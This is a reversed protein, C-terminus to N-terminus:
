DSEDSLEIRSLPCWHIDWPRGDHDVGPRCIAAESSRDFWETKAILKGHIRTMSDRVYSGLNM